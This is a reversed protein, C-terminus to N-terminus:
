HALKKGIYSPSHGYYKKIVRSFYKEDSFGCMESITKVTYKRSALLDIAKDLRLKLLYQKPSTNLHERFSRRLTSESIFTKKCLSSIDLDPNSFNSDMYSLCTKFAVNDIDYSKGDSISQLIKYISAKASNIAHTQEWNRQLEAFKILPYENNEITIKEPTKYNCESFHIVIMETASYKVKYSVNQPIFLLDGENIEFIKGGIEFQANGKTRLSLSAYHRGEVNYFGEKHTFRNISMIQFSLNDFNYLM